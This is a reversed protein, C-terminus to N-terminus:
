VVLGYFGVHHQRTLIFIVEVMKSGIIQRAVTQWRGVIYLSSILWEKELVRPVRRCEDGRLESCIIARPFRQEVFHSNSSKRTHSDDLRRRRRELDHNSSYIRPRDQRLHSAARRPGPIQKDRGESTATKEPAAGPGNLSPM